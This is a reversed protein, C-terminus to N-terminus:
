IVEEKKTDETRRARRSSRNEAQLHWLKAYKLQVSFAAKQAVLVGFAGQTFGGKLLFFKFFTAWPRLWLGLMGVRKGREYMERALAETRGAYREGEFYDSWDDAHRNHLLPSKLHLETGETPLRVDHVAREPWRVRRRDILRNQRDSDWARVHRGLLFNRRPMTIVPHLRLQEDTLAGIERALEPTIEEDADLIFVWDHSAAQTMRQKSAAYSTWEHFEVRDAWQRAIEVTRDKSGSDFVLLESCWDCARASELAHRIKGEENFAAICISIPPMAAMMHGRARGYM